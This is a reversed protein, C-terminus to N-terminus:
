REFRISDVMQRIEATVDGETINGLSGSVILLHVGDVDLIWLNDFATISVGAVACDVDSGVSTYQLHKGRFGDVTVDTSESIEISPLGALYAVLDDFSPGGPPKIAGFCVDKPDDIVDFRVLATVDGECTGRCVGRAEGAWGDPVTMSLHPFPDGLLFTGGPRSGPTALLWGADPAYDTAVVRGHVIVSAWTYFPM